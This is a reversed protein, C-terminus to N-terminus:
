NECRVDLRVAPATVAYPIRSKHKSAVGTVTSRTEGIGDISELADATWVVTSDVAPGLEGNEVLFGEAIPLEVTGADPRDGMREAVDHAYLSSPPMAGSRQTREFEDRYFAPGFRRVYVDADALLEDRSAAGAHVDLHRHHIRPPQEFGIAPIANGTPVQGAEAATTTDHLFSEVQGRDVLRVPTTPRAEADYATAAWSGARVGDDITLPADTLRDGQEFPSFGFAAVDAALYGGIEHCLQGTASPSLVVTSTGSPSDAEAASAITSADRDIEAFLSPLRDLFAAGRTSGHHRRLKPGDVPVLTVDVSARDVTTRVVSDATTAISHDVREDAYTVRTRDLATEVEDPAAQVSARKESLSRDAVSERAWGDHVGRHSSEIDVREATSQALQDGGTTARNAADSLAESSLESTFRYAASGGAFVRCWVGTTTWENDSRVGTETIVVETASRTTGGVEAFSVRDDSELITLLEDVADAVGGQESM